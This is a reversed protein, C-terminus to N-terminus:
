LGPVWFVGKASKLSIGQNKAYGAAVSDLTAMMSQGGIWAEAVRQVLFGGPYMLQTTLLLPKAGATHIKDAFYSRSLCCLAVASIEGREAPPSPVEVNLEMLGNHGVYVALGAQGGAQIKKGAVEVESKLIGALASFYDELARKIERGRYADAVLWAGSAQHRMVIRELIIDQGAPKGTMMKKWAGSRGLCPKLADDCGWYLNGILDDGNGIKAPVPQIGQSANDCLAVFVHIVKPAPEGAPLRANLAIWALCILLPVLSKMRAQIARHFMREIM